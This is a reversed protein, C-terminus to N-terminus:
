ISWQTGGWHEILTDPGNIGVAWVDNASITAVGNLSDSTGHNSSSIISWKGCNQVTAADAVGARLVLTTLIALIMCAFTSKRMNNVKEKAISKRSHSTSGGDARMPKEQTVLSWLRDLGSPHCIALTIQLYM